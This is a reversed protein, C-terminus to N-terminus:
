QSSHCIRERKVRPSKLVAGTYPPFADANPSTIIRNNRLRCVRSPLFFPNTNHHVPATSCAPEGARVTRVQVSNIKQHRRGRTNEVRGGAREGTRENPWGGPWAKETRVSAVKNDAAAKRNHATRTEQKRVFSVASARANINMLLQAKQQVRRRSRERSKIPASFCSM